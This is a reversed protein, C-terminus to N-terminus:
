IGEAVDQIVKYLKQWNRELSFREEVTKRGNRAFRRRLAEDEILASLREVWQDSTNVLFANEGDKVIDKNVGINSVVCPVGCAMYQITKFGAKGKAWVDDVRDRICM